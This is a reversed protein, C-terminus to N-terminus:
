ACHREGTDVAPRSCVLIDSTTEKVFAHSQVSMLLAKERSFSAKPWIPTCLRCDSQAVGPYRWRRSLNRSHLRPIAHVCPAECWRVELLRVRARESPVWACADRRFPLALATLYSLMCNQARETPVCAARTAVFRIRLRPLTHSCVNRATNDHSHTSVVAHGCRVFVHPVCACANRRFPLALATLYKRASMEACARTPVCAARMAVFRFHLRPLTHSCVNRAM